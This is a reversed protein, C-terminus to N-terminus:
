AAARAGLLTRVLEAWRELSSLVLFCSRVREYGADGLATALAPEACLRALAAALEERNAPDRLLLGEVGDRIQDQIGGVASAVVPRKKWLAETVTLGFGEVLSKQVIIKAHRQLANVIVANEDVDDMPLEVLHTARRVEHPMRRLAAQVDSFVEPGEPDDSVGNLTPGALVLEAGGSAGGTVLRAFGELVGRPDKM